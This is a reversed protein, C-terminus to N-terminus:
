DPRDIGAAIRDVPWVACIVGFAVLTILGLLSSIRGVMFSRPKYSYVLRHTGGTVAAGRMLRNVKYIPAPREDITLEWGPYYVDSLIVIGPGLLTAMLEVRQPNPYTVAVTETPGPDQGPLYGALHRLANEDIWAVARPDFVQLTPDRWLDSCYTMEQISKWRDERSSGTMTRIPRAKHVVWARPLEHNNRLVQFDHRGTWRKYEAKGNPGRFMEPPPYLIESRYVFSAYARHEDDWAGSYLPVVFYRTNWMDFSRRPVYVMPQGVAIQLNRAIEPDRVAFRFWKFFWTYEYLEGVGMSFTYEVGRNIGFKSELTDIEWM